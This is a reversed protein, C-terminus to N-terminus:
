PIVIYGVYELDNIVILNDEKNKSEEDILKNMIDNSERKSYVEEWEFYILLVLSISILSLGLILIKKATKNM